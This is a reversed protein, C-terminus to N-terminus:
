AREEKLFRLLEQGHYVIRGGLRAPRLQGNRSLRRLTRVSIRLLGAAQDTSYATHPSIDHPAPPTETRDSFEAGMARLLVEGLYVKRRGTEIGSMGTTQLVDDLEMATMRLLAAAEDRTYVQYREIIM